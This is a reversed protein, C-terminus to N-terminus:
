TLYKSIEQTINGISSVIPRLPINSKHIKPLGYFRPPLDSTPYLRHYLTDSISQNAKWERLINILKSKYNSTPDKKLAEYTTEDKLLEDIKHRYDSINMIVTARGKDAGLIMIDKNKRLNDLAQREKSTINPPPKRFRKITKVVDSCCMWQPLHHSM